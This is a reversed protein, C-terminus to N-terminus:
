GGCGCGRRYITVDGSPGHLTYEKASLREISTVAFDGLDRDASDRVHMVGDDAGYWVHTGHVTEGSVLTLDVDNWDFRQMTITVSM